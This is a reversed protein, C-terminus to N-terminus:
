FQHHCLLSGNGQSTRLPFRRKPQDAEPAQGQQHQHMFVDPFISLSASFLNAFVSSCQCNAFKNLFIGLAHFHVFAQREQHLFAFAVGLVKPQTDLRQVASRPHCFPKAFM